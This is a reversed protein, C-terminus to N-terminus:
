QKPREGLSNCLIPGIINFLSNNTRTFLPSKTSQFEEKVTYMYVNEIDKTMCACHFLKNNEIEEKESVRRQM